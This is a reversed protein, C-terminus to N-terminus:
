APPPAECPRRLVFCGLAYINGDNVWFEASAEIRLASERTCDVWRNSSDKQWDQEGEIRSPAILQLLRTEGYVRCLSAFVADLDCPGTMLVLRGPKLLQQSRRMVRLDGELDPETVSYRGV